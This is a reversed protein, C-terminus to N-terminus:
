VADVHVFHGCRDVYREGVLEAALFRAATDAILARVQEADTVDSTLAVSSGGESEIVRQTEAAAEGNVDVGIM